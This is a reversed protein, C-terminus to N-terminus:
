RARGLERKTLDLLETVLRDLGSASLPGRNTGRLEERLRRERDPDLRETGQEDKLRWLEAVLRLRKNVAEVVLRDNAAIEGRLVAFRDPAAPETM